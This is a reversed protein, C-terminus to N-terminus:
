QKINEIHNNVREKAIEFYNDDKEIGIFRRNTNLCAIGTSGCGMCNDLVIENEMTYTKILYELLEVPKQTPHLLNNNPNSYNLINKPYDKAKSIGYEEFLRHEILTGLTTVDQKLYELDLNYLQALKELKERSPRNANREYQSICQREVGLVASVDEQRLGMKKRAAKLKDGMTIM